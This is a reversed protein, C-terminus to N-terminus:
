QREVMRKLNDLNKLMGERSAELSRNMADPDQQAVSEGRYECFFTITLKTKGDIALLRFDDFATMQMGYSGGKESYTKLLYQQEPILRIIKCYHHHAPPYGQEGAKKFSVRTISGLTGPEGCVDEIRHSTVWSQIELVKKWVQAVPREIFVEFELYGNFITRDEDCTIMIM